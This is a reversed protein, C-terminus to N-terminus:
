ENAAPWVGVDSIGLAATSAVNDSFIINGLGEAGTEMNFGYGSITGLITNGIFVNDEGYGTYVNNIQMGDQNSNTVTNDEILYDNGKANLTSYAGTQGSLDSGDFTNDYILGGTTGEKIDVSEATTNYISNGVVYNNDSQDPNCNTYTCWNSNASGIYIGEGFGPTGLGTNDVTSNEVINNSSNTRFHIGEDSTDQVTVGSLFDNSSSDLVIGKGADEVTIGSVNIYSANNLYLGYHSSSNNATIIASSPGTITIPNTATGSTGLAFSGTYGGITTAGSYTGAALSITEGPQAAALAATLQASTSVDVVTGTSQTMTPISSLEPLGPIAQYLPMMNVTSTVAQPNLTSSASVTAFSAGSDFSGVGFTGTTPVDMNIKALYTDNIYVKVYTSTAKLELDSYTQGATITTTSPLPQVEQAQGNTVQFIGAVLPANTTAYDVYDYDESDQYGFVLAADSPGSSNAAATVNTAKLTWSNSGQVTSDIALNAGGQTLVVPNTTTVSKALVASAPAVVMVITAAASGATVRLRKSLLSM